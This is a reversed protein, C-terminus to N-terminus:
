HSLIDGLESLYYEKDPQNILVALIQLQNATFM